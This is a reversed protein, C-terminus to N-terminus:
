RADSPLGRVTGLGAAEGKVGEGRGKPDAAPRQEPVTHCPRPANAVVPKGLICGRSRKGLTQAGLQPPSAGVDPEGESDARPRGAGPQASAGCREGEAEASRRGPGGRAM